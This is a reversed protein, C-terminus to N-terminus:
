RIIFLINGLQKNTLPKGWQVRDKETNNMIRPKLYYKEAAMLVPYDIRGRLMSSMCYDDRRLSTLNLFSSTLQHNRKVLQIMYEPMDINHATTILQSINNRPKNSVIQVISQDEPPKADLEHQRRIDGYDTLYCFRMTKQCELNDAPVNRCLFLEFLKFNSEPENKYEIIQKQHFQRPKETFSLGALEDDPLDWNLHWEFPKEEIHDNQKPQGLGNYFSYNNEIVELKAEDEDDEILTIREHNPSLPVKFEQVEVDLEITKFPSKTLSHSNRRSKIKKKPEEISITEICSLKPSKVKAAVAEEEAEFATSDISPRKNKRARNIKNMLINTELHDNSESENVFSGAPKAAAAM